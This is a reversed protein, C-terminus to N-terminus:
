SHVHMKPPLYITSGEIKSVRVPTGKRIAFFFFIFLAVGLLQFYLNNELGGFGLVACALLLIGYALLRKGIPSQSHRKCLGIHLVGRQALRNYIFKLAGTARLYTAWLPAYEVEVTEKQVVAKSGCRICQGSIDQGSQVVNNESEM